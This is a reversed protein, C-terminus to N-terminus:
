LIEHSDGKVTNVEVIRDDPRVEKSPNEANWKHILGEKVMKIKLSDSDHSIDLGIKANVGSAEKAIKIQFENDNLQPKAAAAAAPPPEEQPPAAEARQEPAKM